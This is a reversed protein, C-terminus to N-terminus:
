ARDIRLRFWKTVLVLKTGSQVDSNGSIVWRHRLAARAIIRVRAATCTQQLAHRSIACLACASRPPSHRSEPSYRVDVSNGTAAGVARLSARCDKINSFSCNPPEIEAAPKACYRTDAAGVPGQAYLIVGMSLFMITAVLWIALKSGSM